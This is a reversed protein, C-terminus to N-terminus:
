RQSLQDRLTNKREPHKADDVRSVNKENRGGYIVYERCFLRGIPFGLFRGDLPVGGSEFDRRNWHWAEPDAHRHWQRDIM